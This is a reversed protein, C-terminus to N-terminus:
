RGWFAVFSLARGVKEGESTKVKPITILDM